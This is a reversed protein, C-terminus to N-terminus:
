KARRATYIIYLFMVIVLFWAINTALQIMDVVTSSDV